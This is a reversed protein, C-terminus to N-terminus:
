PPLEFKRPLVEAASVCITWMAVLEVVKADETFGLTKPSDTVKM